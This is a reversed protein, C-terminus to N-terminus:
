EWNKVLESVIELVKRHEPIDRKDYYHDTNMYDDIVDLCYIEDGLVHMRDVATVNSIPVAFIIKKLAVPKLYEYALDIEFGSKLGDSTLIINHNRLLERKITGGGGLIHNLEHLQRIKEQEVFGRNELMLEYIEGLTYSSNYTVTGESTIGAVAMPERPLMIESSNILTLACHLEKAIQAGVVAGGDDMAVVTCNKGKHKLAIKQALMRGAQVRSSFYM